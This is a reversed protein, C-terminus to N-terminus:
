TCGPVTLGREDKIESCITAQHTGGYLTADADVLAAAAEDFSENAHYLFQAALYIADMKKGGIENRLDWLASSWVQGVCQIDFRCSKDPGAGQRPDM